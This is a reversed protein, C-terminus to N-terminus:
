REGNSSKYGGQIVTGVAVIGNGRSLSRDTRVLQLRSSNGVPKRHRLSSSRQSTLKGAALAISVERHDGRMLPVALQERFLGDHVLDPPTSDLVWVFECGGRAVDNEHVLIFPMRHARAVRIETALHSGSSGAFTHKSLYLLFHPMTTSARENKMSFRANHGQRWDAESPM